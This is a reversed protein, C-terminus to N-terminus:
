LYTALSITAAVSLAAGIATELVELWRVSDAVRWGWNRVGSITVIPIFTDLSYLLCFLLDPSRPRQLDKEPDPEFAPLFFYLISFLVIFILGAVVPQWPRTGYSNYLQPVFSILYKGGYKKWEVERKIQIIAYRVQAAEDLQGLEEFNKRLFQLTALAFQNQDDSPDRHAFDTMRELTALGLQDLSIKLPADATIDKFTTDLITVATFSAGGAFHTKLITLFDVRSGEFYARGAIIVDIFSMDSVYADRLVFDNEFRSHDFELNALSSNAAVYGAIVSGAFKTQEFQYNVETASFKPDSSRNPPELRVDGSFDVNVTKFELNTISVDGDVTVNTLELKPNNKVRRAFEEASLHSKQLPPASTQAFAQPVVFLSITAAFLLAVLHRYKRSVNRHVRTCGTWHATQRGLAAAPRGSAPRSTTFFTRVAAQSPECSSASHIQGAPTDLCCSVCRGCTMAGANTPWVTSRALYMSGICDGERV